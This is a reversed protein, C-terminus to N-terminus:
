YKWTPIVINLETGPTALDQADVDQRVRDVVGPQVGDLVVDPVALEKRPGRLFLDWLHKGLGHKVLNYSDNTLKHFILM